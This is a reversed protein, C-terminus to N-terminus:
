EGYNIFAPLIRRVRIGRCERTSRSRVKKVQSGKPLQLPVLSSQKCARTDSWAAANSEYSVSASMRHRCSFDNSSTSSRTWSAKTIAIGALIMSLM